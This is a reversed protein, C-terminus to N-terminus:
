KSDSSPMWLLGIFVSLVTLFENGVINGPMAFIDSHM